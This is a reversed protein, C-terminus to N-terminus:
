NSIARLNALNGLVAISISSRLSIVLRHRRFVHYLVVIHAALPRALLLYKKPKGKEPLFRAFLGVKFIIFFHHSKKTIIFIFLHIDGRFKSM